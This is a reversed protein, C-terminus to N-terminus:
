PAELPVTVTSCPDLEVYTTPVGGYVEVRGSGPADLGTIPVVCTAAGTLEIRDAFRVARVGCTDYAGREQMVQAIAALDLTQVPLAMHAAYRSIVADVWDSYMSHLQSDAGTFAHLNSQHFMLPNVDYGLMYLLATDADMAIIEDYTLDRGLEDRYIYNFQDTLQQDNTCNYFMNTPYRPVQYLEPRFPNPRGVNHSPSNGPNDPNIAATISTDSVVVRVGASIIGELSDETDLGSIEPTVLVDCDFGRMGWADALECNERVEARAREVSMPNMNIHGWTHNIWVFEDQRAQLKDILEQEPYKDPDTGAGNFAMQTVFTSGEPLRATVTPQWDAIFDVDAPLLRFPNLPEGWIETDIFVDDIQPTLYIRRAGLFLGRSVWDIVGYELLLAHRTWQSSDFTMALVERGDARTHVVALAEGGEAQLLATTTAPDMVQARYGWVGALDIAADAKLYDFLPAGDTSLYTPVVADGEFESVLQLGNSESPWAYWAVERAACALEYADLRAWEDTDLASRWGDVPDEYGVESQVLVIGAYRCAGTETYLAADDLPEQTALLTTFPVGIRALAGGAAAYAPEEGTAAVLLLRM